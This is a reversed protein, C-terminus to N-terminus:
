RRLGNAMSRNRSATPLASPGGGFDAAGGTSSSPFVTLRGRGFGPEQCLRGRPGARPDRHTADNGPPHSAPWGLRARRQPNAVMPKAVPLPRHWLCANGERGPSRPGAGAATGGRWGRNMTRFRGAPGKAPCVADANIEVILGGCRPESPGAPLHAAGDAGRSVRGRTALRQREPDTRTGENNCWREEHRNRRPGASLERM